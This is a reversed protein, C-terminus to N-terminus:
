VTCFFINQFNLLFDFRVTVHVCFCFFQIAYIFYNQPIGDFEEKKRIKLFETSNSASESLLKSTRSTLFYFESRVGRHVYVLDRSRKSWILGTAAAHEGFNACKKYCYRKADGMKDFLQALKEWITRQLVGICYLVVRLFFFITHVNVATGSWSPPRGFSILAHNKYVCM